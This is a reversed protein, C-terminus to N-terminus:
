CEKAIAVIKTSRETAPTLFAYDHGTDNKIKGKDLEVVREVTAITEARHAVIVRTISLQLIARNVHSEKAADLHSTAEDLFLIKPNKYLARALLVRQRQGGSLTSGMDGVLTRLGMPMAKIDDELAAAKLCALIKTEDPDEEFFAVNDGISGVFLLDEQMVAGLMERYATNGLSSLPQDNVWVQGITPELLGLMIKLVTTKGCGSAGTLAISEGAVIQLTLGEIIWPDLESYRFWINELRISVGFGDSECDDNRDHLLNKEIIKASNDLQETPELVIDAIRESHVSIMRLELFKDILGFVRGSFTAKYSLFAFMMGLSFQSAITMKAALYIVLINETGALVLHLTNYGLHMCQSRIDRNTADVLAALWRSKRDEEAGFLKVTQIGRVTELLITQERAHMSIQEENVAKMPRYTAVRISAYLALVGVSVLALQISYHLLMGLTAIGLIGDILAMVFTTSITKQIQQVSGFRSVIDGLHRREFYPMPLRMLHSFVKNLWRVNLSNGIYILVWTRFISLTGQILILACFGIAALSLLDLDASAIAGDVVLQMYLPTILAFVELAVALIFVQALAGKVGDTTGIMKTLSVKPTAVRPTFQVSPSLELAIGTFHRSAEDISVTVEGCAPDHIVIDRVKGTVSCHIDKLVVFHNLDWHLICPRPLFEIDELEIRVARSLFDLKGAIKVLDKLTAGRIGISCQQRIEQLTSMNGFYASMMALCALSCESSETQLIVPLRNTKRFGFSLTPFQLFSKM